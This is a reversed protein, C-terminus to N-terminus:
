CPGGKTLQHQAAGNDQYSLTGDNYGVTEKLNEFALFKDLITFSTQVAVIHQPMFDQFPTSRVKRAM